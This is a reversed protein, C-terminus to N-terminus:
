SAHETELTASSAALLHSSFVSNLDCAVTTHDLLLIAVKAQIKKRSRVYKM